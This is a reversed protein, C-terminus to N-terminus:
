SFTRMREQLMTGEPREKLRMPPPSTCYVQFYSPPLVSRSHAVPSCIVEGKIEAVTVECCRIHLRQFLAGVRISRAPDHEACSVVESRSQDSDANQFGTYPLLIPNKQEFDTKGGDSGGSFTGDYGEKKERKQLFKRLNQM